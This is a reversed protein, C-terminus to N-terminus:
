PHPPCAPAPTSAPLVPGTGHRPYFILADPVLSRPHARPSGAIRRSQRKLTLLAKPQFYGDCAQCTIPARGPHLRRRPHHPRLPLDRRHPQHQAPDDPRHHNRQAAVPDHGRGPRHAPSRLRTRRRRTVKSASWGNRQDHEVTSASNTPTPRSSSTTTAARAPPTRSAAPTRGPRPRSRAPHRGPGRRPHPPASRRQDHSRRTRRAAVHWRGPAFHGWRPQRTETGSAIIIVVAPIEPHRRRIALWTDELVQVLLSAARSGPGPEALQAAASPRPRPRPGPGTTPTAATPTPSPTTPTPSGRFRAAAQPDGPNTDPHHLRALKRYAKKIQATTADPEVGLLAYYDPHQTTM